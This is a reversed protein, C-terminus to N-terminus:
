LMIDSNEIIQTLANPILVHAFDVHTMDDNISGNMDYRDKFVDFYEINGEIERYTGWEIIGLSDQVNVYARVYVNLNLYKFLIEGSTSEIIEIPGLPDDENKNNEITTLMAHIDKLAVEGKHKLKQYIGKYTVLPGYDEKEIEQKIASMASRRKMKELITM